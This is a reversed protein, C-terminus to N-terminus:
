RAIYPHFNVQKMKFIIKWRNGWTPDNYKRYNGGAAEAAGSVLLVVLVALATRAMEAGGPLHKDQEEHPM